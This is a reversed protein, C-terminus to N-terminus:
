KVIQAQGWGQNTAGSAGGTTPSGAYGVLNPYRQLEIQLRREIEAERMTKNNKLRVDGMVEDVIKKRITEVQAQNRYEGMADRGYKAAGLTASASMQHGLLSAVGSAKLQDIKGNREAVSETHKQYADMDGKKDAAKAKMLDMEMRSNEQAAKRFDKMADKYGAAGEGFGKAINQLANQSTGGAAALGGQILAMYFDQEKNTELRNKEKEIATGAKAFFEKMPEARKNMFTEETQADEKAPLNAEFQQMYSNISPLGPESPAKRGAAAADDEVKKREIAKDVVGQEKNILPSTQTTTAAPKDGMAVPTTPPITTTKPLGFEQRVQAILAEKDARSMRVNSEIRAIRAQLEADGAQEGFPQGTVMGPIDYMGQAQQGAQGYPLRVVSGQQGQFRPVEGGEDFAIIGGGAMSQMNQAPLQAIGSDEPLAMQSLEQDVVNPQQQGAQAAQAGARLQKRRNSEAMALTLVYPDAKHMAAYKQLAQDPMKALQATIQNVNIM